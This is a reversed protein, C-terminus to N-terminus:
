VQRWDSCDWGLLAEVRDIDERFHALVASRDFAERKQRYPHVNRQPLTATRPAPLGLHGHVAALATAPDDRLEEYKLWLLAGSSPPYAAHWVEIWQAYRGIEIAQPEEALWTPLDLQTQGKANFMNWASVARDVPNRLIAVLKMQPNYAKMRQPIHPWNLYMPTAEGVWEARRSWDFHQHYWQRGAALEAKRFKRWDTFYFVEKRSAFLVDPQAKLHSALASTGAKQAGIICFNVRRPTTRLWRNKAAIWLVYLGAGVTVLGAVNPGSPGAWRQLRREWSATMKKRGIKAMMEALFVGRRVFPGAYSQRCRRAHLDFLNM